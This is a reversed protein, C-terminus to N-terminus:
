NNNDSQIDSGNDSESTDPIFDLIEGDEDSEPFTNENNYELSDGELSDATNVSDINDKKNTDKNDADTTSGDANDENPNGNTTDTDGLTKKDSKAKTGTSPLAPTSKSTNLGKTSETPYIELFPLIDKLIEGAFKTAIGSSQASPEIKQPDDLVVYIVMEPKDAPVAGIFSLLHRKDKRPFKQATGTKGGVKYGPVKAGSATGGEGEVTLYMANKIFNSTESSVSEKVLVKDINQLTAGGQNIIQKVIHPEYYYGGNVLSSFGSAMQIMTVTFTQGFSSIALDVPSLKNEPVLIGVAEGPLDIGTKRGMGFSNQYDYFLKKGEKAGIQMLADNCSKMLAQTLDVTGHIHSCGIKVGNISQGGDCVYTDNPHIINEELGASVTFPKFTSGPEYMDSITYNRWIANLADLREKDTMRDIEKKTYFSTLDTPNNLDYEENSAMALIEGNNPNMVIVGINLCDMDKNFKKIHEQVIGQVNADITSVITNGNIAPKTTQELKLESDIYGYEIGNVGNLQDNYFQEIGWNGVNGSSTFGIVDSALTKYPYKRVYDEEFWVGKINNDKEEKDKFQMMKEYNIGKKLIVYRSEPRKNVLDMVTEEKISDYCDTLAKITPTLYKKDELMFKVDLIINYVKESTALVTGKRDLISGRQFPIVTSTYTQQSLVKKAYREGDTRNIHVLRVILGIMTIIIICFVLLLKAQMKNTFKKIKKERLANRM